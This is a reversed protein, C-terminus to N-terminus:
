ESEREGQDNNTNSDEDYNIKAGCYSCFLSDAAIKSGCKECIIKGQAIGIKEKLDEVVALQEKITDVLEKIDASNNEQDKILEFEAKGLEAFSKNLKSELAALDIKQKQLNVIEGTKKYATSFVDKAKQVTEDFTNM